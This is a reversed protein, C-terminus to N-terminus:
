PDPHLPRAGAALGARCPTRDPTSLRFAERRPAPRSLRARHTDPPLAGQNDICRPMGNGRMWDACPQGPDRPRFAGRRPHQPAFAGVACPNGRLGTLAGKESENPPIARM